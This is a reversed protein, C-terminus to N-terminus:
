TPLAVHHLGHSSRPAPHPLAVGPGRQAVAGALLVAQSAIGAPDGCNLVLQRAVLHPGWVNNVAGLPSGGGLATHPRRRNYFDVVVPLAAAREDNSGYAQGYAWERLLTQIVREAKGNTQPRM